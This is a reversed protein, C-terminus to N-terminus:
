NRHSLTHIEAEVGVQPDFKISSPPVGESDHCRLAGWLKILKRWCFVRKFNQLSVDMIAEELAKVM